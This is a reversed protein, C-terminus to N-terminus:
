GRLFNSIILPGWHTLFSEPHFLVGDVRQGPVRVGLVTGDDAWASVQLRSPISDPSVILSHYRAAAFPNPVGDFLSSEDHRVMSAKGHVPSGSPVITAGKAQAILQMGLCVGLIPIRSAYTALVAGCIGTQSPDFPGPSFVIREPNLGRVDELSCSESRIVQCRGGALELCHVLNWTFSDNNDLVLVRM